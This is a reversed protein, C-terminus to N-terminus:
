GKIKEIIEALLASVQIKENAGQSIRYDIDAIFSRLAPIKNLEMNVYSLAAVIQRIFNRSDLTEISNI